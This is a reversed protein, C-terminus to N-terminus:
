KDGNLYATVIAGEILILIQKSLKDANPVNSKEFLNYIDNYINEKHFKSIEYVYPKTEGIEGSGNIFACGRFNSENFWTDLADFLVLINEKLSHEDKIYSNFWNRWKIDRNKLYQEILKDKSPFYKYLTSMAVGAEKIIKDIGVSQIGEQYFLDEATNLIREYASLSKTNEKEM